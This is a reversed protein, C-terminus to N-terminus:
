FVPKRVRRQYHYSRNLSPERRPPPKRDPRISIPCGVFLRQLKILVQEAPTDSYLLALVQDKLAHFTVARNIQKPQQDAASHEALSAASQATLVTELNCLLLAAHFDQLVAEVTEGSFNELDLRSKLVNYFTEHNWRLHYVELFEQTPYEVEDLLSTVLVEVGGTPLRVSVFRVNLELPLGLRRVEAKQACHPTLKVRLSVGGRNKRFLEQAAAFSATSGTVHIHGPM